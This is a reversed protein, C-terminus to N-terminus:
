VRRTRELLIRPKTGADSAVPAVPEAQAAQLDGITLARGWMARDEAERASEARALLRRWTHGEQRDRGAELRHRVSRTMTVAQVMSLIAGIAVGILPIVRIVIRSYVIRLARRGLIPFAQELMSEGLEGALNKLAAKGPHHDKGHFVYPLAEELLQRDSGRHGRFLLLTIVYSLQEQVQLGTELVTAAVVSPISIPLFPIIGPVSSVGGYVTLRRVLARSALRELTAPDADPFKRVLDGARQRALPAARLIHARVRDEVFAKFTLRSRRHLKFLKRDLKLEARFENADTTDTAM